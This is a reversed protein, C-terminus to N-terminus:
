GDGAGSSEAKISDAESRLERVVKALAEPNVGAECLRLCLALTEEDLGTNLVRSIEMLIDMTEKAAPTKSKSDM